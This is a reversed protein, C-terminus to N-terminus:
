EINNERAKIILEDQEILGDLDADDFLDGAGMGFGNEMLFRINPEIGLHKSLAFHIDLYSQKYTDLEALKFLRKEQQTKPTELDVKLKIDGLAQPSVTGYFVGKYAAAKNKLLAIEAELDANEDNILGRLDEKSIIRM